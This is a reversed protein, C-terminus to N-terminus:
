RQEYRLEIKDNDRMIYEGFELNEAGNVTMSVNQGFSNLDKGWAAFFNKLKLNDKKVAGSFELHITGNPEHTHMPGMRGGFIGINPSVEQKEGNVYITLTPHWHIGQRSVIDGEPTKPQSAVWWGLGGVIAVAVIIWIGKKVSSRKQASLRRQEKENIQQEM